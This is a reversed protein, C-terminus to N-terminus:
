KKIYEIPNTTEYAINCKSNTVTLFKYGVNIFTYKLNPYNNNTFDKAAKSNNSIEGKLLIAKSRRSYSLDAIYNIKGASPNFTVVPWDCQLTKSLAGEGVRIISYTEGKPLVPVKLVVYGNTPTVWATPTVLVSYEFKGDIIKGKMINVHFTGPKVGLIIIAEKSPDTLKANKDLGAMTACGSVFILSILLIINKM